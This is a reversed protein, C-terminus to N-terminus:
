QKDGTPKEIVNEDIEIKESKSGSKSKKKKGKKAKGSPRETGFKPKSTKETGDKIWFTPM